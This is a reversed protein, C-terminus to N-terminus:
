DEQAAYIADISQALWLGNSLLKELLAESPRESEIYLYITGDEIEFSAGAFHAAIVETMAPTVTREIDLLHGATGYVTYQSNFQAPYSDLAGLALPYLQEYSAAFVADRSHHGVYFHPIETHTHLDITYILWHCRVEKTKDTPLRVVDNRSVLIVDYSKVTGICYHSDLHTASVTHGRVLRHEDNKQDVYGFYVLGVKEAFRTITRQTMRSRVIHVPTMHRLARKMRLKIREGTTM